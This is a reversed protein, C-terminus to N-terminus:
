LTLGAFKDQTRALAGADEIMLQQQPRACAESTAWSIAVVSQACHEVVYGKTAFVSSLYDRCVRMKYVPFGQVYDPISYAVSSHGQKAAERVIKAAKLLITDFAPNHSPRAGGQSVRRMDSASPISM